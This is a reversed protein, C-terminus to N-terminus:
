PKPVRGENRTSFGRDTLRKQLQEAARADGKPRAPNPQGPFAGKGAPTVKGAENSAMTMM